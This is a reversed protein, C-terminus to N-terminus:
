RTGGFSAMYRQVELGAPNSILTKSGRPARIAGDERIRYAAPVARFPRYCLSQTIPRSSDRKPGRDWILHKRDLLCLPVRIGADNNEDYPVAVSHLPFRILSLLFNIARPLAIGTRASWENLLNIAVFIDQLSGLRKVFVPRVPQGSLWDAGCSERFPGEFFTKKSNVSFGLISLLRIVRHFAKAEVILDDGFCGWNAGLSSCRLTDIGLSRYAARILCSFILTQLPFTFGNGMTSIMNLKVRQGGVETFPSRIETLTRFFWSPFILRCLNVSISDSASSLDITAFRGTLSGERALRINSEPQNSLDLGFSSRLREELIHGLGLQVFMNLSPEVCIMRSCDITKPAFSTRSAVTFIPGGLSSRCFSDAEDMLPFWEIWRRYAFYLSVSTVSLKSAFLKSYTSESRALIAAGPGVRAHEFMEFTSSFLMQGEPHLFRDVETLFEGWLLSDGETDLRLNWDKCRQNSTLFKEKAVEDADDGRVEWKRLLNFLLYSSCFQKYSADPPIMAQGVVPFPLHYGVDTLVAQYLDDSRSSM